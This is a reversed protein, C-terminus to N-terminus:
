KEAIRKLQRTIAILSAAISCLFSLASFGAAGIALKFLNSM